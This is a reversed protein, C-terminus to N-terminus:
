DFDTGLFEQTSADREESVLVNTTNTLRGALNRNEGSGEPIDDYAERPAMKSVPTEQNADDFVHQDLTTADNSPSREAMDIAANLVAREDGKRLRAALRARRIAGRRAP